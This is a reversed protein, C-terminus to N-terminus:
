ALTSIQRTLEEYEKLAQDPEGDVILRGHDLLIVRTCLRRVEHLNHSVVVITKGQRHFEGMRQDCKEQFEADGVSLIEDVLLIDPDVEVAIAFALRMFMGSSYQKIPSDIFGGLDAFEIIKQEREAIQRRTLGLLLGNLVINERGTLDHHFGAGLEILAAVSGQVEVRGSSPKYVGAILKLATSKGSGNRGIIGLVEGNGVRFSVGRLAEFVQVTGGRFLKTFAERVSDPREHIVRYRQVVNELHIRTPPLKAESTFSSPMKPDVSTPM